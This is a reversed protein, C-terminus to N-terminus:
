AHKLVFEKLFTEQEDITRFKPLEPLPFKIEKKIIIEDVMEYTPLLIKKYIQAYYPHNIFSKKILLRYKDKGGINNHVICAIIKGGYMLIGKGCIFHYESNKLWYDLPTHYSSWSDWMSTLSKSNPLPEKSTLYKIEYLSTHEGLKDIVQKRNSWSGTMKYTTTPRAYREYLSIIPVWGKYLGRLIIKESAERVRSIYNSFRRVTFNTDIM